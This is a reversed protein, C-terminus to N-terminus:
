RGRRGGERGGTRGRGEGRKNGRSESVVCGPSSRGRGRPLKRHSRVALVTLQGGAFEPGRLLAAGAARREGRAAPGGADSARAGWGLRAKHGAEGPGRRRGPVRPLQPEASILIPEPSSGQAAGRAGM